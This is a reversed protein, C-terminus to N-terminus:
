RDRQMDSRRGQVLYDIKQSINNTTEKINKVGEEIRSMRDPLNAQEYRAVKEEIIGQDRRADAQADYIVKLTVFGSVIASVALGSIVSAWFPSIVIAKHSM